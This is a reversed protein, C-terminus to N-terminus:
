EEMLKRIPEAYIKANYRCAQGSFEKDYNLENLVDMCGTFYSNEVMVPVQKEKMELNQFRASLYGAGFSVSFFLVVFNCKNFRM